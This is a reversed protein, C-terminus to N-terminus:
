IGQSLHRIYLGAAHPGKLADVQVQRQWNPDKVQSDMQDATMGQPVRCPSIGSAAGRGELRTSSKGQESQSAM